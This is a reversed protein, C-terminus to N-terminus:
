ISLIDWAILGAVEIEWDDNDDQIVCLSDIWLYRCGIYWAMLVADRFTSPLDDYPIGQQHKDLNSKVTRLPASPGWSHSLAIYSANEGNSIHLKIKFPKVEEDSIELVRTPLQTAIKDLIGECHLHKSNCEALWEKLINLRSIPTSRNPSYYDEWIQRYKL